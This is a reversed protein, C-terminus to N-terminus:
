TRWMTIEEAKMTKKKWKSVRLNTKEINKESLPTIGRAMRLHSCRTLYVKLNGEHSFTKIEGENKKLVTQISM